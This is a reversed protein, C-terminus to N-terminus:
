NSLADRREVYLERAQNRQSETFRDMDADAVIEALQDTDAAANIAAIVASFAADTESAPALDLPPRSKHVPRVEAKLPKVMYPKRKGRSTSLLVSIPQDIHSVHSIRIGGVAVGGFRVDADGYLVMSRGVWESGKDGWAAILVRLMSKCPKFPRGDGGEYHVEIPQEKSGARVETVRITIPGGVLDEYNIQNANPAAAQKINVENM